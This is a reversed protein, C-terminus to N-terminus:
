LERPEENSGLTSLSGVKKTRCFTNTVSEHTEWHLYLYCLSGCVRLCQSCRLLNLLLLRDGRGARSEAQMKWPLDTITVCVYRVVM